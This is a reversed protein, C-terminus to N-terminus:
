VIYTVNNYERGNHMRKTVEIQLSQGYLIDTNFNGKAMPSTQDERSLIGASILLAKLRWAAEATLYVRDKITRGEAKTSGDLPHPTSQEPGETAQMTILLYVNGSEPQQMEPKEIINVTYKGVDLQPASLEVHEFNPMNIQPM